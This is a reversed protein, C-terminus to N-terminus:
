YDLLKCCHILHQILGIVLEFELTSIEVLVTMNSEYMGLDWLCLLCWINQSYHDHINQPKNGLLSFMTIKQLSHDKIKSDSKSRQLQIDRDHVILNTFNETYIHKRCETSNTLDWHLDFNINYHGTAPGPILLSICPTHCTYLLIVQFPYVQYIGPIYRTYVPDQQNVLYTQIYWTYVKRYRTYVM